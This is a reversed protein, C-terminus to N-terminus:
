LAKYKQLGAGMQNYIINKNIIKDIQMEEEQKSQSM